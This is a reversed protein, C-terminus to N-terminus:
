FMKFEIDTVGDMVNDMVPVCLVTSLFNSKNNQVHAQTGNKKEPRIPYLM